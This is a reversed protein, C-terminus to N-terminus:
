TDNSTIFLKAFRYLIESGDSLAAKDFTMKPNHLGPTLNAGIGIYASKYGGLTSYFHFDESGSNLISPKIKEVVGDMAKKALKTMTDDIQAADARALEVIEAKTGNAEAGRMIADHVKQVLSSMVENTQARIDVTFTAEDSIINTAASAASLQTVKASHPVQPNERIANISSVIASVANIPNSGQHPQAAHCSKGVVKARLVVNAAHLVKATAEHLLLDQTPRLHCGIIGDIGELEGSELILKAGGLKEEAPQFVFRIEGKEIGGDLAIRKAVSLVMASHADHGCAHIAHIVGNEDPYPLADMDARMALIPGPEKGRLIGIVATTDLINKHVELGLNELEDAIFSSTEQEEWGLEPIEHLHQFYEMAFTSARYGDM